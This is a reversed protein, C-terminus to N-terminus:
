PASRHLVPALVHAVLHKKAAHRFNALDTRRHIAHHAVEALAAGADLDVCLALRGSSILRVM